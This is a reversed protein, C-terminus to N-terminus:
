TRNNHYETVIFRFFLKSYIKSSKLLLDIGILKYYNLSEFLRIFKRNYLWWKKINYYTKRISGTQKKNALWFRNNNILPKFDKIEVLPMYYKNFSDRMPDDNGNRFSLVFM